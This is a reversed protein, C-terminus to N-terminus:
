RPPNPKANLLSPRVAAGNSYGRQEWYGAYPKDTIEIATVWRVWKYGYKSNAAVQFPFGRREDLRRGNIKFALILDNKTVDEYPLSSSYGDAAHFIVTKVGGRVGSRAFLDSLRIGEYLLRESWGEICHLTFVRRAHPLALVEDYNLSLPRRVLGTVSLRYAKIDVVQPGRISNDYKRDFPSLREGEYDKIETEGQAFLKAALPPSLSMLLIWFFDRRRVENEVCAAPM